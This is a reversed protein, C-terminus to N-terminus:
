KLSSLPIIGSCFIFNLLWYRKKIDWKKNVGRQALFKTGEIPLRRGWRLNLRCSYSRESKVWFPYCCITENAREAILESVAMTWTFCYALNTNQNRTNAFKDSLICKCPPKGLLETTFFGGALVPSAPEIGPDPLDRFFSIAVWELIRAQSIERIFSSPQSCDM